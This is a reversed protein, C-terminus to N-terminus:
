DEEVLLVRADVSMKIGHWVGKRVNYIKYKDMVLEKCDTGIYLTAEGCMLVFVEDTELHREVKRMANEEECSNLFAVRWSNFNMGVVYGEGDHRYVDVGDM